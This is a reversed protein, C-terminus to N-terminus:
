LKFNAVLYGVGWPGEYSLIQPEYKVKSEELIGLIFCISRLGCEGAEPYLDDLKLIKKIDKKELARVLVEDFKPGDQHFGYPGEKKLCHSLDGSAILAYKKNDSFPERVIKKGEEFYFKPSRSGILVHEIEGKFKPALFFLPVNFGWDDHPSSIIISDPGAERMKKGLSGLSEITKKAMTRDKESRGPRRKFRGFSSYDSSAPM